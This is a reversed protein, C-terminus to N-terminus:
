GRGSERAAVATVATVDTAATVATLYVRFFAHDVEVISEPLAGVLVGVFEVVFHVCLCM